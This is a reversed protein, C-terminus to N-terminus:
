NYESVAVKDATEKYKNVMEIMEAEAEDLAMDVGDKLFTHVSEKGKYTITIILVEGIGTLNDTETSVMEDYEIKRKELLKNITIAMLLFTIIYRSIGM